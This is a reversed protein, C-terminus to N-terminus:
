KGEVHAWDGYKGYKKWDSGSKLNHALASRRLAWRYELVGGCGPPGDSWLWRADVIDAALGLLHKSKITQSYGLAMKAKQNELTRLGCGPPIYPQYGHGELDPIVGDRIKRAFEPDLEALRAENKAKRQAETM